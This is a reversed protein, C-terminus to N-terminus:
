GEEEISSRQTTTRATLHPLHSRPAGAGLAGKARHGARVVM